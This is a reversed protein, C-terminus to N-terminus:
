IERVQPLKARSKRIADMLIVVNPESSMNKWVLLMQHKRDLTTTYDGKINDLKARSIGLYTALTQWESGITQSVELLYLESLEGAFM